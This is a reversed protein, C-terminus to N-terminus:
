KQCSHQGESGNQLIKEKPWPVPPIKGRKHIVIIPTSGTGAGDGLNVKLIVGGVIIVVIVM